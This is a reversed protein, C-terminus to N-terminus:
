ELMWADVDVCLVSGPDWLTAYNRVKVFANGHGYITKAAEVDDVSYQGPAVRVIPGYIEHLSINEREFDGQYVKYFYWLRTFRAVFPGPVSRLPDLLAALLLYALIVGGSLLALSAASLDLLRQVIM